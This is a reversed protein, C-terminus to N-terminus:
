RRLSLTPCCDGLLTRKWWAGDARHEALTTFRYRYLLARVYRPPAYPFPNKRLLALVPPSGKLLRECFSVFWPSSRYDGLAAFWMQWDLRPQHPEVFRPRRYVDGPKYKFEYPIWREGDESGEVIIEDRETTM